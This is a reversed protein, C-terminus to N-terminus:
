ERPDLGKEIVYNNVRVNVGYKEILIKSVYALFTKRNPSIISKDEICNIVIQSDSIEDQEDELREFIYDALEEARRKALRPFQKQMNEFISVETEIDEVM